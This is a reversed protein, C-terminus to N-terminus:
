RSAATRNALASNSHVADRTQQLSTMISTRAVHRIIPEVFWRLSVPVDRSLAVAEVELYVGGDREEFRTVAFLRWALGTGQDEPLRHQDSAGYEAIEQIRTTEVISYRRRDDVRFQLSRYDGDLATKRYLSKNMLLMSFRDETDSLSVPKSDIVGPRYFDKYREYDRVIPLVQGLKTNAIFVAGIWDHILGFPVAIPSTAGAPSAVVEGRRVKAVREPSEDVWLFVRGPNVRDRMRLKVGQVYDEWANVTEHQLNAASAPCLSILV